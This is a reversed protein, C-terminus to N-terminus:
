RVQYRGSSIATTATPSKSGMTISRIIRSRKAAIGGEDYLAGRRGLGRTSGAAPVRKLTAVSGSAVADVTLMTWVAGDRERRVTPSYRAPIMSMSYEPTTFSRSFSIVCRGPAGKMSTDDTLPGSTRARSAYKRVARTGSPPAFRPRAASIVSASRAARWPKV